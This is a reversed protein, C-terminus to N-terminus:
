RGTEKENTVEALQSLARGIRDRATKAEVGVATAVQEPTLGGVVHLVLAERETPKLRGLSARADPAAAVDGMRETRPADDRADKAGPSTARSPLKSLQTTCARHALGMLFVRVDGEPPLGKEGADRAVRELARTAAEGDGILAMCVRALAPGHERLAGAVPGGREGKENEVAVIRGANM